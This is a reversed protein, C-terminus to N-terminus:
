SQATFGIKEAVAQWRKIDNKLRDSLGEPSSWGAEMGMMAYAKVLEPNAVASKMAASAQQVAQAPTGAPMFVGFWETMESLAIHLEKFTPVNTLFRSRNAGTVGLVRIKGTKMHPLFEGLPAAVAPIHGGLLDVIAPQSGRFGTQVMKVGLLRGLLEGLFHPGSGTAGHGFTASDPNSKIWALYDNLSGVSEPVAPGIAFGVESTSVMGVPVFDKVPDYGLDKYTHPYLTMMSAPTLLLTAGNPAAAKVHQIAIRGGAGTRNDVLVSSAYAGRMGESLRRAAMDTAGGAALGIVITAM